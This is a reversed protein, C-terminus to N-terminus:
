CGLGSARPLTGCWLRTPTQSGGVGSRRLRRRSSIPSAITVAVFGFRIKHFSINFTENRRNLGLRYRLVKERIKDDHVVHAPGRDVFWFSPFVAKLWPSGSYANGSYSGPTTMKRAARDVAALVDPVTREEAPMIWGHHRIQAMLLDDLAPLVKSEVEETREPLWADLWAQQIFVERDPAPTEAVAVARTRLIQALLTPTM